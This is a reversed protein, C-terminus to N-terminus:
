RLGLGAGAVGRSAPRIMNNAYPGYGYGWGGCVKNGNCDVPVEKITEKEIIEM